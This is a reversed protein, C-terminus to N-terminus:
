ALMSLAPPTLVGIKSFIWFSIMAVLSLKDPSLASTSDSLDQGADVVQGEDADYTKGFDPSAVIEVLQPKDTILWGSDSLAQGADVIQGADAACTKDFDPSAVIEELPPKDTILRNPQWLSLLGEILMSQEIEVAASGLLPVDGGSLNPAVRASTTCISRALATKERDYPPPITEAVLSSTSAEEPAVRINAFFALVTTLKPGASALGKMGLERGPERSTDGPIWDGAYGSDDARLSNDLKGECRGTVYRVLDSLAEALTPREGDGCAM